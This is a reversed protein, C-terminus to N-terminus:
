FSSQLPFDQLRLTLLTRVEYARLKGEYARNVMFFWHSLHVVAEDVSCAIGTDNKRNGPWGLRQLM